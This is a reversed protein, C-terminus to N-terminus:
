APSENRAALFAALEAVTPYDFLYELDVELGTLDHLRRAFRLALLSDLGLEDFPITTAVLDPTTDLIPALANRMLEELQSANNM